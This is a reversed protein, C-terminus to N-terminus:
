VGVNEQIFRVCDRVVQDKNQLYDSEWVVLTKFGNSTLDSQKKADRNWIQQCTLDVDFSTLIKEDSNYIKPNAHWFDGNFEICIKHNNSDCYSFDLSYFDDNLIVFEEGNHTAYKFKDSFDFHKSIENFLEVSEKSYFVGNDNNLQRDEFIKKLSVPDKFNHEYGYLRLCTQKYKERIEPNQFAYEHGYKELCTKRSKEKFQEVQFANPKGYKSIMTQECRRRVDKNMFCNDVGFHKRFTDKIKEKCEDSKAYRDVNYRKMCTEKSKEEFKPSTFFTTSGHRKLMTESIRDKCLQYAEKTTRAKIGLKKIRKTILTDSFKNNFYEAIQPCSMNKNIYLDYMLDYNLFDHIQDLTMKSGDKLTYVMPKKINKVM